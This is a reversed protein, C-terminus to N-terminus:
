AVEGFNRSEHVLTILFSVANKRLSSARSSSLYARFLFAMQGQVVAQASRSAARSPCQLQIPTRQVQLPELLRIIASPAESRCGIGHFHWWACLAAKAPGIGQFRPRYARGNQMLTMYTLSLSLPSPIMHQLSIPFLLRFRLYDAHLAEVATRTSVYSLLTFLAAM